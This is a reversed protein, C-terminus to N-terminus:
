NVIARVHISHLLLRVEKWDLIGGFKGVAGKVSDIPAKGDIVQVFRDAIESATYEVDGDDSGELLPTSPRRSSGEQMSAATATAEEMGCCLHLADFFCRAVM